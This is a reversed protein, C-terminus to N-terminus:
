RVANVVEDVQLRVSQLGGGSLYWLGPNLIMVRTSVGRQSLASQLTLRALPEGGIAASRDVVLLTDPAMEALIDETVPYFTREGRTVPQVTDPVTAATLELLDFIVPESRLSLNGDNHTLVTVTGGAAVAAKQEAVHQWLADLKTGATEELGYYSALSIVRENVAERYDGEALTVDRVPALRAVQMQIETDQRSTMLVLGPNLEDILEQDPLKLSGADPVRSQMGNLYDPLGRHPLALIQENVGLEVLTDLAGHDYSIVTPGNISGTTACGALAIAAVSATLVTTHNKM